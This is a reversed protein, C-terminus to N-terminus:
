RGETRKKPSTPRPSWCINVNVCLVRVFMEKISWDLGISVPLAWVCPNFSIWIPGPDGM